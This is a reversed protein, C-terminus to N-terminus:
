ASAEKLTQGVEQGIQKQHCSLLVSRQSINPNRSAYRVLTERSPMAMDAPAHKQKRANLMQKTALWARMRMVSTTNMEMM